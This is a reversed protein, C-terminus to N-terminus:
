IKGIIQMPKLRSTKIAPVISLILTLVIIGLAMLGISGWELEVDMGSLYFSLDLRPWTIQPVLATLRDALSNSLWELPPIVYVFGYILVLGIGVGLIVGILAAWVSMFLYLQLMAGRGMGLFTLTAISELQELHFLQLVSVTNVIAVVVIVMLLFMLIGQTSNMSILNNRNLVQWDYVYYTDGLLSQLYIRDEAINDYPDDVKIGLFQELQWSDVLSSLWSGDMFLWSEDLSQYGTSVLASVTARILRPQYRGEEDLSVLVLRVTDGVALGLMRASESGLWVEGEDLSAEAVSRMVYKNFGADDEYLSREIGRVQVSVRGSSSFALAYTRQEAYVALVGAEQEIRARVEEQTSAYVSSVQLHYTYTQLFRDLIGEVMAHSIQSIFVLPAMSLAIVWVASRFARQKRNQMFRRALLNSVNM